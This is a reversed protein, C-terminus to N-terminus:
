SAGGRLSFGAPLVYRGALRALAGRAILSAVVRNASERSTGALWGLREQSLQASLRIRGDDLPVCGARALEAFVALIREEVDLSLVHAARREAALARRLHTDALWGAVAPHAAASLVATREPLAVVARGLADVRVAPGDRARPEPQDMWLDGPALLALAVVRGSARVACVLVVGELVLLARAPPDFVSDPLRGSGRWRPAALSLARVRAPM